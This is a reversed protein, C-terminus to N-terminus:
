FYGTQNSKLQYDSALYGKYVVGGQEKSFQEPIRNDSYTKKIQSSNPKQESSISLNSASTKINGGCFM